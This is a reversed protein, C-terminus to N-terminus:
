KHGLVIESIPRKPVHHIRDADRYYKVDGDRMDFVSHEELRYGFAVVALMDHQEEDVGTIGYLKKKDIAGFWCSGIDESTAYVLMNEIAAGADLTENGTKLSKDAFVVIYLVPREGEAPAGNKIHGAWWISGFVEKATQESSVVYYKLPQRNTASPALRACELLNEIIDAPISKSGIFRRCSRRKLIADLANM